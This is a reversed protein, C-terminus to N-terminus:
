FGDDGWARFAQLLHLFSVGDREIFEQASGEEDLKQWVSLRFASLRLQRAEAPQSLARQFHHEAESSAAGGEEAVAEWYERNFCHFAAMSYERYGNHERFAALMDKFGFYQADLPIDIKAGLDFYLGRFNGDASLRRAIKSGHDNLEVGPLEESHLELTGPGPAVKEWEINEEALGEPPSKFSSNAEWQVRDHSFLRICKHDTTRLLHVAADWEMERFPHVFQSFPNNDELPAVGDKLEWQGTDALQLDALHVPKALPLEIYDGACFPQLDAGTLATSLKPVGALSIDVLLILQDASLTPPALPPLVAPPSTRVRQAYLWRHGKLQLLALPVSATNPWRTHCLVAWAEDDLAVVRWISSVRCMRCLQLAGLHGTAVMLRVVAATLAPPPPGSSSRARRQQQQTSQRM